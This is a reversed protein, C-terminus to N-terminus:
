AASDRRVPSMDGDGPDPGLAARLDHRDDTGAVHGARARVEASEVPLEGVGLLPPEVLGAGDFRAGGGGERAHERGVAVHEVPDVAGRRPM